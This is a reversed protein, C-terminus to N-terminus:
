SLEGKQFSLACRTLARYIRGQIEKRVDKTLSYQNLELCVRMYINTPAKESNAFVKAIAEILDRDKENIDLDNKLYEIIIERSPFLLEPTIPEVSM